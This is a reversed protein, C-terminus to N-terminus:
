VNVKYASMEEGQITHRHVVLAIPSPGMRHSTSCKMWSSMVAYEAETRCGEGGVGGTLFLM